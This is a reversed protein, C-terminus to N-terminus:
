GRSAERLIGMIYADWQLKMKRKTPEFDREQYKDVGIRTIIGRAELATAVFEGSVGLRQGFRFYLNSVPRIRPKM